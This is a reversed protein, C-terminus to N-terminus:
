DGIGLDENMTACVLLNETDEHRDLFELLTAIRRCADALRMEDAPTLECIALHIGTMLAALELHEHRMRDIKSTLTPRRERVPALYGGAEELAMHKHVHARLHAFRERLQVLWGEPVPRPVHTFGRMAVLLPEMARHEQCIWTAIKGAAEDLM